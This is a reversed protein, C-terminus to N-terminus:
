GGPGTDGGCIVEKAQKSAAIRLADRSLRLEKGPRACPLSDDV